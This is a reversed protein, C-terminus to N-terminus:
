DTSQGGDDNGSAGGGYLESAWQMMDSLIRDPVVLKAFIERQKDDLLFRNIFSRMAESMEILLDKNIDEAAKDSKGSAKFGKANKVKVQVDRLADYAEAFTPGDVEPLFLLDTRGVTAVHPDENLAFSKSAV